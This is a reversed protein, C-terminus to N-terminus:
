EATKKIKKLSTVDVVETTEVAPIEPSTPAVPQPKTKVVPEQNVIVPDPSQGAKWKSNQNPRGM